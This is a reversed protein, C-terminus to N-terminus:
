GGSLAQKRALPRDVHKMKWNNCPGCLTQANGEVSQGGACVPIVHDLTLNETVGCRACRDGLWERRQKATFNTRRQKRQHRPKRATEPDRPPLGWLSRSYAGVCVPEGCTKDINRDIMSRKRYRAKGCIVCAIEAGQLREPRPGTRDILKRQFATQRCGESCFRCKGAAVMSQPRYFDGDCVECKLHVGRRKKAGIIGASRAADTCARSCFKIVTGRKEAHRFFAPPRTFVEGCNQCTAAIPVYQERQCIRTFETSGQAM